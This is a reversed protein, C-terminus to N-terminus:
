VSRPHQVTYDPLFKGIATLLNINSQMANSEVLGCDECDGSHSVRIEFSASKQKGQRTNLLTCVM